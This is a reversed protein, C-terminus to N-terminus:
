SILGSNHGNKRSFAYLFIFYTMKLPESVYLVCRKMGAESSKKTMKSCKPIGYTNDPAKPSVNRAIFVM